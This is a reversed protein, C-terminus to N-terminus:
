WGPRWCRVCSSVGGVALGWRAKVQNEAGEGGREEGTEEERLSSQSRKEGRGRSWGGGHARLHPQSEAERRRESGMSRRPPLKLFVNCHFAKGQKVCAWEEPSGVKIVPVLRVTDGLGCVKPGDKM